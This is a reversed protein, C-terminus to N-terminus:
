YINSKNCDPPYEVRRIGFIISWMYEMYMGSMRNKMFDISYKSLGKRIKIYQKLPHKIIRSNDVIFTSCCPFAYKETYLQLISINIFNNYRMYKDIEYTKNFLYDYHRKSNFKLYLCYIGGFKVNNIYKTKKLYNIRNYISEKYHWSTIHDHIFIYKNKGKKNYVKILFDLMLGAENSHNISRNCFLHIVKYPIFTKYIKLKKDKQCSSIVVYINSSSYIFYEDYLLLFVILIYEVFLILSM